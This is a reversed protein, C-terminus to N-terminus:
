DVVVGEVEKVRGALQKNLFGVGLLLVKKSSSLYPEYYKQAEIQDLAKKVLTKIRKIRKNTAFKFEIIYVQQDLELVGDIQGKDTAKELDMKLGMLRLLMFILSHYYAERPIHLRAPIEALYGRIITLFREINENRLAQRLEFGAPQTYHEPKQMFTALLYTTFSQEVEFNPYGLRYFTSSSDHFKEKITLYGTQFFLAPLSMELPRTSYGELDSVLQNELTEPLAKQKKAVELLFSPTGTSFWFNKWEKDIFFNLMSFSNYLRNTGDWSYGNYYQKIQKLLDSHTINLHKTLAELHSSFDKELEEQTFGAIANFNEHLSIDRLNNLGSFVGIKSFRSVGTLMVFRLYPDLTKLTSYLSKLIERNEEFQEANSLIDVMPKDYEDILVVVQGGRDHLQTILYRFLNPIHKENSEVGFEKGIAKLYDLLSEQFALKGNKYEVLSYDLHIVPHKKWEKEKDHIYLGRFLNERGQFFSKLTSLLLSKGFRRPRSLFYYKGSQALDWVFKTKDVYLLDQEILESFTQRGLPLQKLNNKEM